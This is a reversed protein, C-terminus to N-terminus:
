VREWINNNKEIVWIVHLFKHNTPEAEIEQHIHPIYLNETSLNIKASQIFYSEFTQQVASHM